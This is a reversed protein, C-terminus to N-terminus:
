DLFQIRNQRDKKRVEKVEHEGQQVEVDNFDHEKMLYLSLAHLATKKVAKEQEDLETPKIECFEMGVEKRSCYRLYDFAAKIRRPYM